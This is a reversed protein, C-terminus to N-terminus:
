PILASVLPGGPAMKGNQCTRRYEEFGMGGTGTYRWTGLYELAEEPLTSQPTNGSRFILMQSRYDVKNSFDLLYGNIRIPKDEILVNYYYDYTDVEYSNEALSNTRENTLSVIKTKM